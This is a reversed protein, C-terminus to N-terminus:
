AEAILLFAVTITRADATDGDPTVSCDAVLQGPLTWEREPLGALWADLAAGPPASLQVVHTAGTFTASSWPRETQDVVTVACGADRASNGLAHALRTATALRPFRRSM